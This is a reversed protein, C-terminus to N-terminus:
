KFITELLDNRSYSGPAVRTLLTKNVSYKEHLYKNLNHCDAKDTHGLWSGVFRALAETDGRDSIAKIKRKARRASDKRILKHGPWIRYGLFNIGRSVPSVQWHSFKMQMKQAAFLEIEDKISRLYEPCDGMVIVDDMYRAFTVKKEHHLFQDLINGYVNASLQSPLSGIPVGISNPPIIKELLGLTQRCSIKKGYELHLINANISPFFAAFDTKLFHTNGPKRIQSQVFRVGAHTGKQKRCAFSWPLFTADFIPELVSYIAHHVVRDAFCPAQILRRKPEYIVFERFPKPQWTKNKLEEYITEINQAANEQFNLFGSSSKKGEQARAYAAWLTDKNAILGYLNKYKKGM